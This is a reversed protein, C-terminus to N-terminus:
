QKSSQFSISQKGTWSKGENSTSKEGTLLALTAEIRKSIEEKM